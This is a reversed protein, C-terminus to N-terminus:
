KEHNEGGAIQKKEAEDPWTEKKRFGQFIFRGTFIDCVDLILECIEVAIRRAKNRM